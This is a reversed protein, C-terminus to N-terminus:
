FKELKNDFNWGVSEYHKEMNKVVLELMWEFTQESIESNKLHVVDYM